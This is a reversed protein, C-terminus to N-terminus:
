YQDQFYDNLYVGGFYYNAVLKSNSNDSLDMIKLDTNVDPLLGTNSDKTYNCDNVLEAQPAPQCKKLLTCLDSGNKNITSLTLDYTPNVFKDYFDIQNVLGNFKRMIYLQNDGFNLPNTIYKYFYSNNVNVILKNMQSDQKYAFGIIMWKGLNAKSFNKIEVLNEAGHKFYLMDDTSTYSIKLDGLVFLDQNDVSLINLQIAIRFNNNNTITLVSESTNVNDFINKGVNVFGSALVCTLGSLSYGYTCKTCKNNTDCESCNSTCNPLYSYNIM